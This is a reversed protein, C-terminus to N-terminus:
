ARANGYVHLNMHVHSDTVGYWCYRHVYRYGHADCAICPGYVSRHTRVPTATVVPRAGMAVQAGPDIVDCCLTKWIRQQAEPLSGWSRHRDLVRVRM